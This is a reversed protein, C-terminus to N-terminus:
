VIDIVLMNESSAINIVENKYKEKSILYDVVSYVDEVLILNRSSYKNLIIRRNTMISDFM